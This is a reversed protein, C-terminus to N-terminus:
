SIAHSKTVSSQKDESAHNWLHDYHYTYMEIINRDRSLLIKPAQGAVRCDWNFLVEKSGDSYELIIFNMQPENSHLLKYKYNHSLKKSQRSTLTHLCRLKEVAAKDGVDKWTLGKNSLESLRDLFSAYGKSELYSDQESRLGEPLTFSTNKVESLAPLRSHIYEMASEYSGIPTVHMYDKVAGYIRGSYLTSKRLQQDVNFNQNLTLVSISFILAPIAAMPQGEGFNFPDLFYAVIFTSVALVPGIVIHLWHKKNAYLSRKNSNM